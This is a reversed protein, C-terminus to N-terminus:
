SPILALMDSEVFDYDHSLATQHNSQIPIYLSTRSLGTNDQNPEYSTHCLLQQQNPLFGLSMLEHTLILIMMDM